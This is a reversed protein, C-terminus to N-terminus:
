SLGVLHGFLQIIWALLVFIVGVVASAMVLIGSVVSLVRTRRTSHSGEDLEGMTIAVPIMVWGLVCLSSGAWFLFQAM